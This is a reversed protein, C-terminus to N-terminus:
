ASRCAANGTAISRLLQGTKTAELSAGGSCLAQIFSYGFPNMAEVMMLGEDGDAYITEHFVHRVGGLSRELNQVHDRVESWYRELLKSAEDPVDPPFLFIPVLFLKRQSAYQEAEPKPMQSLPTAM